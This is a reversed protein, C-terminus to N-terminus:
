RGWLYLDTDIAAAGGSTLRIIDAGGAVTLGAASPDYKFEFAGIGGVERASAYAAVANAGGGISLRDTATAGRHVAFVLGLKTISFASGDPQLLGGAVLDLATGALAASVRAAYVQNIQDPGDTGQSLALFLPEALGTGLQAGALDTLLARFWIEVQASLM